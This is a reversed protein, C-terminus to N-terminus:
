SSWAASTLMWANDASGKADAVQQELKALQATDSVSIPTGTVQALVFPTGILLVIVFLGLWLFRTKAPFM